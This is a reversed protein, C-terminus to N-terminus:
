GKPRLLERFAPHDRLSELDPESHLPLWWKFGQAYAARLLALAEDREGLLAAIRARWYTHEGFLYPRELAELMASIQEAEARKGQRAALTGLQGHVELMPSINPWEALNDPREAAYSRLVQEAEAWRGALNYATALGVLRTAQEESPLALYAELSRSFLQEAAETHGHARLELATERMQVPGWFPGDGPSALYDELAQLAETVRGAAIVARLEIRLANSYEPSQERFQRATQLERRFEGLLHHAEALKIWYFPWGRLEGRYPDIQAFVRVAERPRNLILLERAVQYHLLSNPALEAGRVAAQYSVAYDGRAWAAAATMVLRDFEALGHLQPEVLRAISDVAAYDRLLVHISASRVLPLTFASDHAASRSFHQLARPLQGGGKASLYLEMGEAYERYAEYSPTRSVNRAHDRIRPDVHPALGAMVRQRLAEVADLPTDSSASVPELALLLRGAVADTIRGKLYLTDGQLYYSGSIVIGAGTERALAQLREATDGGIVVGMTNRPLTPMAAFPVVDVLGTHALGQVIWDAAMSGVPDFSSQGTRNDFPAVVVRQPHLATGNPQHLRWVGLLIVLGGVALGVLALTSWRRRQDSRASRSSSGLDPWSLQQTDVPETATAAAGGAAPLEDVTLRPDAPATAMSADPVPDAPVRLRAALEVVAPDPELAWEERLLTEHVRAHRLAAARDGSTELAEMLCVAVRGSMPDAAQLRRWWAIARQWDGRGEALQALRELAERFGVELEMRLQEAWAQFEPAGDVHVGDLFAGDYLSVAAEYDGTDLAHRFQAVDSEIYHANLHLETTGLIADPSGLQRRLIHLMQKLAGRARGANSEPWLLLMVKERGVGSAGGAALVALLALAKRQANLHDLLTDDQRLGLGGFTRLQFM